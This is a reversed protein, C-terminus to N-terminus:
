FSFIATFQYRLADADDEVGVYATQWHSVEAGFKMGPVLEYFVNGWFATNKCRAGAWLDNDEPDDMSAGFNFSMTDFPGIAVAGWAGTSEISTLTAMNVGQGIGGLYADMNKGTYWEGLVTIKDSVPFQAEVNMSWTDLEETVENMADLDFEEKGWHGSVGLQGSKGNIKFTYAIRGQVSPIGADEGTDGPDYMTDRGITRALAGQIILKGEDGMKIGKTLRIQPRRYGINGAWWAPAYTVTTPNLPSIIDSTQGAVLSFDEDVWIVEAYAHRMMPNNKNESTGAYFDIEARGRVLIGNTVEREVWFGLRSQRATMNFQNDDANVSENLVWRAYNGPDVRSDDYSADLKLYGYFKYTLAKKEQSKEAKGEDDASVLVASTMLFAMLALIVMLASAKKM